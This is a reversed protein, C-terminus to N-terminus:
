NRDNSFLDDLIEDTIDATDNACGFVGAAIRNLVSGLPGRVTVFDVDDDSFESSASSTSM